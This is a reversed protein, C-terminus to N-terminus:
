ANVALFATATQIEEDSLSRLYYAMAKYAFKAPHSTLCNFILDNITPVNGGLLIPSGSNILVGNEWWTCVRTSGNWRVCYVKPTVTDWTTRPSAAGLPLLAYSSSSGDAGYSLGLGASPTNLGATFGDGSPQSLMGQIGPDDFPKIPTGYFFITLDNPQHTNEFQIFGAAKTATIVGGAYSYSNPFAMVGLRLHGGFVERGLDVSGAYVNLNNIELVTAGAPSTHGIGFAYEGLINGTFSFRQWTSTATMESSMTGFPGGLKFKGTGSVLRVDCAITATGTGPAYRLAQYIAGGGAPITLRAAEIKGQWDPYFVPNAVGAISVTELEAGAGVGSSQWVWNGQHRAIRRSQRLLQQPFIPVASASNPIIPNNNTTQYNKFYWLGLAGTPMEIACSWSDSFPSSLLGFDAWRRKNLETIGKKAMIDDWIGSCAGNKLTTYFGNYLGTDRNFHIEQLLKNINTYNRQPM